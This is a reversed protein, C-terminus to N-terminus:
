GKGGLVPLLVAHRWRCIGLLLLVDPQLIPRLAWGSRHDEEGLSALMVTDVMSGTTTLLNQLAVPIAITAVSSLFPKWAFHHDMPSAITTSQSAQQLLHVSGVPVSVM